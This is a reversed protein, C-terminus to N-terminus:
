QLAYSNGCTLAGFLFSSAFQMMPSRSNHPKSQRRLDILVESVLQSSALVETEQKGIQTIYIMQSSYYPTRVFAFACPSSMKMQCLILTNIALTGGKDYLIRILHLVIVALILLRQRQSAKDSQLYGLEALRLVLTDSKITVQLRTHSFSLCFSLVLSQVRATHTYKM